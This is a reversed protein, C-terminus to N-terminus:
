RELFYEESEFNREGDISTFQGKGRYEFGVKRIVNGSAQNEKAYRFLFKRIGVEKIMYEVVAKLSETAYGNRWFRRGIAYGIEYCEDINDAKNASISGILEGSEKLEIGWNYSDLKEYKAICKELWRKTEEINKQHNWVMYKSVETDSLWNNFIEEADTNKFKRLILRETDIKQTGKHEKYM